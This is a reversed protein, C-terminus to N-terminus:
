HTMTSTPPKMLFARLEGALREVMIALEPDRLASTLGERSDESFLLARDRVHQMSESLDTSVQDQAETWPLLALREADLQDVRGSEAIRTVVFTLVGLPDSRRVEDVDVIRAFCATALRQTECGPKSLAEYLDVLADQVIRPVELENSTATVQSFLTRELSALLQEDLPLRSAARVVLRCLRSAAAIV